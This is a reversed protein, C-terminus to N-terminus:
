RMEALSGVVISLITLLALLAMPLRGHAGGVIGLATIQADVRGPYIARMQEIAARARRYYLAHAHLPLWVAFFALLLIWAVANGSNPVVREAGVAAAIAFYPAIFAILAVRYLKRYILWLVGCFLVPWHWSIPPYGRADARAFYALYHQQGYRGIFARYLAEDSAGGASAGGASADGAGVSSERGAAM